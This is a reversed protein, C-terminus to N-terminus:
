KWEHQTSRIPIFGKKWWWSWQMSLRTVDYYPMPKGLDIIDNYNLTVNDHTVRNWLSSLHLARADIMEPDQPDPLTALCRRKGTAVDEKEVVRAGAVDNRRQEVRAHMPFLLVQHTWIKRFLWQVVQPFTIENLLTNNRFAGQHHLKNRSKRWNEISNINKPQHNGQFYKSFHPLLDNSIIANWLNLSKGM